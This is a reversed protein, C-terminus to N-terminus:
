QINELWLDAWRSTFMILIGPGTQAAIAVCAEQCGTCNPNRLLPPSVLPRISVFVSWNKWLSFKFVSTMRVPNWYLSYMTVFHSMVAHFTQCLSFSHCSPNSIWWFHKIKVNQWHQQWTFTQCTLWSCIKEKEWTICLIFARLWQLLIRQSFM